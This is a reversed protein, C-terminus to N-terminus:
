YEHFQGPFLKWLIGERVVRFRSIQFFEPFHIRSIGQTVTGKKSIIELIQSYSNIQVKLYKSPEVSPGSIRVEQDNAVM